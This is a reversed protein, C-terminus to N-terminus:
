GDWLANPSLRFIDCINAKDTIATTKLKNAQPAEAVLAGSAEISAGDAELSACTEVRVSDSVTAGM